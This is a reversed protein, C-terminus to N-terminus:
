GEYNVVLEPQSPPPQSMDIGFLEKVEERIWVDFPDLSSGIIALAQAPDLGDIEMIVLSGVPGSQLFWHERVLGLRKQSDIFAQRRPGAIEDCFRRFRAERGPRLPFAAGLAPVLYGM